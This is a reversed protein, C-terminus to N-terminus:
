FLVLQWENQFIYHRIITAIIILSAIEFRSKSIFTSLTTELQFVTTPCGGLMWPAPNEHKLNKLHFMM